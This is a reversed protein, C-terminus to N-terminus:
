LLCITRGDETTVTWASWPGAKVVRFIVEGGVKHAARPCFCMLGDFPFTIFVNMFVNKCM